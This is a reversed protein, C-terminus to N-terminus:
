RGENIPEMLSKSCGDREGTDLWILRVCYEDIVETIIAKWEPTDKRQVLDGAKM